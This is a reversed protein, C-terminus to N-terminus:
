RAQDGMWASSQERIPVQIGCKVSLFAQDRRYRVAEAVLTESHGMGYFDGTNIMTIGADLAAEITAISERDRDGHSSPQPGGMINSMRMCGLGIASVLPGNQGLQRMQMQWEM